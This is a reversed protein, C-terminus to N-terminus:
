CSVALGLAVSRQNVKEVLDICEGNDVWDIDVWSIGERLLILLFFFLSASCERAQRALVLSCTNFAVLVHLM